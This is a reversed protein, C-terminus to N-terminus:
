FDFSSKSRKISIVGKLLSYVGLCTPLDGSWKRNVCTISTRIYGDPLRYGQDCTFTAFQGQTELTLSSHPVWPPPGCGDAYILCM